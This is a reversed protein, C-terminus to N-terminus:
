FWSPLPMVYGESVQEGNRFIRDTVPVDSVQLRAADIAASLQMSLSLKAASVARSTNVIGASVVKGKLFDKLDSTEMLIKKVDTNSLNPNADLILGAANTVFPAAQSTGSVTLYQNGPITSLIGVGPAAVEVM